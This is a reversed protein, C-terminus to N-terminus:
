ATVKKRKIKKWFEEARNIAEKDTLKPNRKIEWLAKDAIPISINYKKSYEGAKQEITRRKRIRM